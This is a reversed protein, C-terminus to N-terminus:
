RLLFTSLYFIGHTTKLFSFQIGLNTIILKSLISSATINILKSLNKIFGDKFGLLSSLLVFIIIAIDIQNLAM